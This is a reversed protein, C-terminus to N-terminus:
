KFASEAEEALSLQKLETALKKNHLSAEIAQRLREENSNVNNKNEKKEAKKAKSRTTRTTAVPSAKKRTAAAPKPSLSKKAAGPSLSKKKTLTRGKRAPSMIGAAKPYLLEFNGDGVRLMNVTVGNNVDSEFKYSIIKTSQAEKHKTVERGKNNRSLIVTKAKTAEKVDYIKINMDLAKAAYQTVVDGADSDWVGDTRLEELQDWVNENEALSLAVEDINEMMKDVVSERLVQKEVEVNISANQALKLFTGITRYFCNGDGKIPIRQFNHEDLFKKICASPTSYPKECVLETHAEFGGRKRTSRLNRM